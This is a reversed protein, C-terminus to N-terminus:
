SAPPVDGPHPREDVLPRVSKVDALKRIDALRAPDVRVAIANLARRVRYIEVAGIPPRRLVNIVRDQQRQIRRSQAAAARRAAAADAPENSATPKTVDRSALPPETLEIVVDVSGKGRPQNPTEFGRPSGEAVLSSRGPELGPWFLLASLAGLLSVSSTWAGFGRKMSRM